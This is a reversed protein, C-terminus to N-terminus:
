SDVMGESRCDLWRLLGAPEHDAHNAFRGQLIARGM